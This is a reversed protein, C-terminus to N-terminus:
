AWARPCCGNWKASSVTAGCRACALTSDSSLAGGTRRPTRDHCEPALVRDRRATRRRVAIRDTRHSRASARPPSRERCRDRGRSGRRCGSAQPAALGPGGEALEAELRERIAPDTGPFQFDYLVSSVYLGSGGVLIAVAGRGLIEDIVARAEVQYRAVSAEDRPELVDLLHHPIGRRQESRSDKGNRHGHRPLAADRRRQRDGRRSGRRAATRGPRALAPSKGTGTPGVIAVLM